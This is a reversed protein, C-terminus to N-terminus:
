GGRQKAKYEQFRREKEKDKYPEPAKAKPANRQEKLQASAEAPSAKAVRMEEQMVDLIADLQGSAYNSNIIERAHNKDSVTSVGTPNIARAYSNILANLATNLKVIERGGTGKDVANQIANITPYQTRDVKASTTRVIKIMSDAENAATLIKASQTALAKSSAAGSMADISLEKLNAKPDKELTAAIIGINRSNVRGPDLRGELIATAVLDKGSPSVTPTQVIIKTAKAMERKFDLFTGKFPPNDEKARRYEREAETERLQDQYQVYNGKFGGEVAAAFDREKDTLKADNEYARQIIAAADQDSKLNSKMLRAANPAIAPRETAVPAARNAATTATPMVGLNNVAAATQFGGLENVPRQNVAPRNFMISRNVPPVNTLDVAAPAPAPAPAPAAADPAPAVPRQRNQMEIFQLRTLAPEGPKLSNLYDSYRQDIQEKEAKEFAPMYQYFNDIGLKSEAILNKISGSKIAADIRAYAADKTIGRKTLEANLIPNAHNAEHWAKYEQAATPSNPDIGELFYRSKKLEAQFLEAEDKQKKIRASDAELGSKQYELALKPNVRKLQTLYEASTPDLKALANREQADRRAEELKLANMQSTDYLGRLQLAQSMANIPSEVQISKIQGPISYDIGAM